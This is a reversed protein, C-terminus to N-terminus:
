VYCQASDLMKDIKIHAEGSSYFRFCYRIKAEVILEFTILMLNKEKEFNTQKNVHLRTSTNIAFVQRVSLM